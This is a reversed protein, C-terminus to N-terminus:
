LNFRKSVVDSAVVCAGSLLIAIVMSFISFHGEIVAANSLLPALSKGGIVGGVAGIVMAFIRGRHHNLDFFHAGAWGVVAGALLWLMINM